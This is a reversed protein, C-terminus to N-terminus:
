IGRPVASIGHEGCKGWGVDRRRVQFPLELPPDFILYRYGRSKWGDRTGM